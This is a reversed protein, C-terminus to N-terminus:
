RGWHCVHVHQTECVIDALLQGYVTEGVHLVSKAHHPLAPGQHSSLGLQCTSSHGRVGTLINMNVDTSSMYVFCSLQLATAQLAEAKAILMPALWAYAYVSAM